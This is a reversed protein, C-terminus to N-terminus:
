LWKSNLALSSTRTFWSRTFWSRALNTKGLPGIFLKSESDAM